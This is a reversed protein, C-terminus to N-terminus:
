QGATFTNIKQQLINVQNSLEHNMMKYDRFLTRLQDQSMTLKKITEDQKDITKVLSQQDFEQHLTNSLKVLRQQTDERQSENIKELRAITDNLQVLQETQGKIQEAVVAMDNKAVAMGSSVKFNVWLGAGILGILVVCLASNLVVLHVLQPNRMQDIGPVAQESAPVEPGVPQVNNGQRAQNVKKLANIINSM